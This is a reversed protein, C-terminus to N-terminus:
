TCSCYSGGVRNVRCITSENRMFFRCYYDWCFRCHDLDWSLILNFVEFLTIINNLLCGGVLDICACTDKSLCLFLFHEFLIAGFGCNNNGWKLWNNTIIFISCSSSTSFTYCYSTSWTGSCYGCGISHIRCVSAENRM